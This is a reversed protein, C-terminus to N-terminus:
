PAPADPKAVLIEVLLKQMRSLDYDAKADRYVELANEVATLADVRSAEDGTKRFLSLFVTAMNGWTQAWDLPARELTREDLAARFATVAEKLSATGSEREGLVRSAVGLNNQTAAWDLPVSTRIREELAARYAVVAEKLRATGSEREGLSWLAAGLNNQAAAWELPVVARTWEDLAARYAAVAEELRATGSEREGLAQLATGLNNQTTAWDLPFGARTYKGLAARHATVAEELRATGSEREGLAQLAVGLNSQAAAWDLPRRARAYRELAARYAAVAEELRAQGIERAGLVQLANGLDNSAAGRQDPGSASTETTRALEIAVELDINIGKDRGREFFGNQAERLADFRGEPDEIELGIKQCVLRAVAQADRRLINQEIGADLIKMGAQLASQRREEEEAQWQAFARDAERAAEDFLGKRSLAAVRRLVEDVFEGENSGRAGEEQVKIAIEVARELEVLAQEVTEVNTIRKALALIVFRELGVSEARRAEDRKEFAAVVKEAVADPMADLKHEVCAVGDAIQPLLRFYNELGARFVTLADKGALAADLKADIGKVAAFTHDAIDRALKDMAIGFAKQAETYETQSKLIEAFEAFVLEGFARPKGSRAPLGNRAISVFVPPLEDLPWGIVDAFTAAFDATVGQAAAQTGGPAVYEAVGDMIVAVHADIASVGPDAGRDFALSRAESLEKEALKAVKVIEPDVEGNPRAARVVALAAEIWAIRTARVLDHNVATSRWPNADRLRARFERQWTEPIASGVISAIGGLGFGALKEVWDM